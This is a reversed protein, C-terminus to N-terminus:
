KSVFGGCLTTEILVGVFDLSTLLFQMVRRMLELIIFHHHQSFHQEIQNIITELKHEFSNAVNMISQVDNCIWSPITSTHTQMKVMRILLFIFLLFM